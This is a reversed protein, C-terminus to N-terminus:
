EGFMSSSGLFDFEHPLGVQFKRESAVPCFGRRCFGPLSRAPGVASRKAVVLCSIDERAPRLSTTTKLRLNMPRLRALRAWYRRKEFGGNGLREQPEQGESEAQM